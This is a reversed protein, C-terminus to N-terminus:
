PRGRGGWKLARDDFRRVAQVEKSRAARQLFADLDAGLICDVEQHLLEIQVERISVTQHTGGAIRLDALDHIIVHGDANTHRLIIITDACQLRM